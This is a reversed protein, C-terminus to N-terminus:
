TETIGCPNETRTSALQRSRYPLWNDAMLFGQRLSRQKLRYREESYHGLIRRALYAGSIAAVYPFGGVRGLFKALLFIRNRTGMRVSFDSEAGGTLSSVKHLLQAESILFLRQGAKLCRLMFDTDDHYVFYREDMLGVAEFVSSKLLVCCTPAHEIQRDKRFQGHDANGEELHYCRYGLLPQFKGGAAWITKPRDFYFMVPAAMECSNAHLGQLLQAFLEPGFEVDNNLLLVHTCRAQLAARIGQNNGAAVGLNERNPIVSVQPGRSVCLAVSDDASANDVCWVHFDRCNQRDLSEFFGPLVSASNFLVTVVGIYPQISNM